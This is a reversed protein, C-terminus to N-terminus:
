HDGNPAHDEYYHMFVEELDPEYITIKEIPLKSLEKLLLPIEGQFLFSTGNKTREKSIVGTTRLTIDHTGEKLRFTIRSLLKEKLASIDDEILNDWGLIFNANIHIKNEHCLRLFELVEDANCGKGIYRLMRNTPFEMGFGLVLKPFVSDDATLVDKLATNEAKAPRIFLRYEIDDRRPLDPLVEKIYRLTPVTLFRRRLSEVNLLVLMIAVPWLLLALLGPLLGLASLLALVGVFTITTPLLKAEIRTLVFLGALVALISVIWAM